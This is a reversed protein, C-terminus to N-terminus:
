PGRLPLSPWSFRNGTSGPQRAAQMQPAAALTEVFRRVSMPPRDLKTWSRCHLGHAIVAQRGEEYRQQALATAGPTDLRIRRPPTQLQYESLRTELNDADFPRGALADFVGLRFAPHRVIAFLATRASM